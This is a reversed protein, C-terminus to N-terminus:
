FCIFLAAQRIKLVNCLVDASSSFIKLKKFAGWCHGVCCLFIFRLQGCCWDDDIFVPYFVCFPFFRKFVCLIPILKFQFLTPPEFAVRRKFLYLYLLVRLYSANLTSLTCSRNFFGCASISTTLFLFSFIILNNLATRPVYNSFVDTTDCRWRNTRKGKQSVDRQYFSTYM